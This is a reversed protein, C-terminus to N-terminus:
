FKISLGFIFTTPDLQTRELYDLSTGNWCEPNLNRNNSGWWWINEIQANLSISEIKAKKLWSNQLNYSLTIERLKIYNAKKIHKDAAYWIYTSTTSANRAYAPSIDPNKEDGAKKWYNTINRNPNTAFSTGTLMQPMIDRMVHGGYYMFMFSFRFQKYSLNNILSAAYPPTTTGSYVLDEATLKGTSNVITGDAKYAQPKGTADLGAWRVSYLANYPKGERITPTKIYSSVSTQANEYSTIENKNYSFNLTTGWNFDKTRINESNLSIEVGRNIMSAYNLQLSNWGSTPDVAVSGLLDDTNKSYYEISGGLRNSFLSFDVGINVQKTKEWRLGSNPPSDISSSMDGTWSNIGASYAILYPGSDKAINGNIGYTARLSLHDIWTANKLFNEQSAVWGLGVSWLPKYQFKPDTGFLNSQDMRISGTISYRRNYMYSANGYFSVFRDEKDKFTDPYGGSKHTYSNDLSETGSQTQNLVVEDIYSHALSIKDYGWKEVYTSTQRIARREAGALVTIDHKEKFTKNYDVQARMTYSNKDSRTEQIHGGEPVLHQIQGNVIKTSNNLLNRLYYSEPSYYKSWKENNNEMQYRASLTLGDIIKAQLGVNLNLYNNKLDFTQNDREELPYYSEDHLGISMLRDMESQSKTQYWIRENGQEDFLTQYSPVKGTLRSKAYFPISYERSYPDSKHENGKDYESNTITGLLGLDAKLWKFFQYTSRFNYGFKDSGIGKQENGTYTYNASASYTYKESGGRLSINHQNVLPTRLFNDKLQDYNDRNRYINLQKELDASNIEGAENKYLLETVENMYKRKDYTPAHYLNFMEVQWDVFESSNMRNLYDRSDKLPALSLTTSYEVATKNKVGGRTTIVIVGNASRAGYISAAAADKLITVNAIESPNIAAIDGEYPVGDVVYLPDKRGNITSLGRVQVTGKYNTLGTTLGELKDMVNVNLKDAMKQSTVVSFAGTAREKSLTQYGTVVVDALAIADPKLAINMVSARGVVTEYNSMGISSFVLRDGQSADITYKGDLDSSAYKNKTINQITVGPLPDGNEEAVIGSVKVVTAKSQTQTPQATTRQIIGLVVQNGKVTYSINIPNFIKGFLSQASENKSSVSVKYGDVKLEDTFVFKYNSQKSVSELVVRLPTEKFDVTVGSQAFIGSCTVLVLCITLFLKHGLKSITTKGM